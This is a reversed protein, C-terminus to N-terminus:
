GTGRRTTAAARPRPPPPACPCLSPTRIPSPRRRSHGPLPPFLLLLFSFCLFVFLANISSHTQASPPAPTALKNPTHICVWISVYAHVGMRRSVCVPFLSCWGPQLACARALMGACIGRPAPCARCIFAPMYTQMCTHMCTHMYTHTCTHMYAHICTHM